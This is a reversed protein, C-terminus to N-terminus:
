QTMIEAAKLQRIYLIPYKIRENMQIPIRTQAAVPSEYKLNHYHSEFHVSILFSFSFLGLSLSDILEPFLLFFDFVPCWYCQLSKELIFEEWHGKNGEGAVHESEGEDQYGKGWHNSVEV